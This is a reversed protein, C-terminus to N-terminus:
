SAIKLEVFSILPVENEDLSFTYSMEIFTERCNAVEQYIKNM